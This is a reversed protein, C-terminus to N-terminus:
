SRNMKNKWDRIAKKLRYRHGWPAIGIDKFMENLEEHKMDLLMKLDIKECLFLEEYEELGNESLFTTLSFNKDVVKENEKELNCDEKLSENKDHNSIMHRKINANTRTVLGCKECRMGNEVIPIFKESEKNSIKDIQNQFANRPFCEKCFIRDGCEEICDTKRHSFSGCGDCKLPDLSRSNFGSKCSPCKETMWPKEGSKTRINGKATAEGVENMPGPIDIVPVKNLLDGSDLEVELEVDLNMKDLDTNSGNKDIGKSSFVEKRVRLLQKELSANTGLEALLKRYFEENNGFEEKAQALVTRVARGCSQSPNGRVLSKMRMRLFEATVRAKNPACQHVRDAMAVVWLNDRM